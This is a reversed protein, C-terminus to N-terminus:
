RNFEKIAKATARRRRAAFKKKLTRYSTWFFPRAQTDQTGFEVLLAYDLPEAGAHSRVLRTTKAGGARVIQGGTATKQSRISQRLDGDDIPALAKATKVWEAADKALAKELERRMGTPLKALRAKFASSDWGSPM